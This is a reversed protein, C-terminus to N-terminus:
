VAPESWLHSYDAEMNLAGPAIRVSLRRIRLRLQSQDAYVIGYLHLIRAANPLLDPHDLDM